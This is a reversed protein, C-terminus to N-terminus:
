FDNHLRKLATKKHMYNLIFASAKAVTSNIEQDNSIVISNPLFHHLNLYEYRLKEAMEFTLEQKRKLLVDSPLDIIIWLDPQPIIYHFVKIFFRNLKIRYRLPDALIDIFYRDFLVLHSKVKLPYIKFWYGLVFEALLFNLKIFSSIRDHKKYYHPKQTEFVEKKTKSKYFFDPFKKFAITSQFNTGLTCSIESVFTSKGCGDRGLIGVVLGSPKLLNKIRRLKDEVIDKVRISTNLHLDPLLVPINSNLASLDNKSFCTKIIEISNESFFRSLKEKIGIEHRMWFSCFERFQIETISLNEIAKILYYTFSSIRNVEWIRKEIIYSPDSLLEESPMYFRGKAKFGCCVDIKIDGFRETIADCYSLILLCRTTEYYHMQIIVLNTQQCFEQIYKSIIKFDNRTIVLNIDGNQSSGNSYPLLAYIINRKNLYNFLLIPIEEKSM